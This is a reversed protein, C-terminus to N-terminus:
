HSPEEWGYPTQLRSRGEKSMRPSAEERLTSNEGCGGQTDAQGGVSLICLDLSLAPLKRIAQNSRNGRIVAQSVCVWM